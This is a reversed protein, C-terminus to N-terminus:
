ITFSAAIGAPEENSTIDPFLITKCPSPVSLSTIRTEDLEALAISAVIDTSSSTYYYNLFFIAYKPLLGVSTKLANETLSVKVPSPEVRTKVSERAAKTPLSLSTCTKTSLTLCSGPM